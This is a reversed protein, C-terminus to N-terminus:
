EGAEPGLVFAGTLREADSMLTLPGNNQTYARTDSM